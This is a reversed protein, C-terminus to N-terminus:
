FENVNNQCIKHEKEQIQTESLEKEGSKTYCFLATKPYIATRRGQKIYDPARIMEIRRMCTPSVNEWGISETSGGNEMM